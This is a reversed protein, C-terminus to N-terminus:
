RNTVAEGIMNEQIMRWVFIAARTTGLPNELLRDSMRFTQTGGSPSSSTAALDDSWYATYAKLSECSCLPRDLMSLALYAVAREWRPDMQINPLVRTNDKWGARYWVRARDPMRYDSWYSSDYEETVANWTGPQGMALGRRTDRVSLCGNQSAVQCRSCGQGALCDCWAQQWLFQVQVSPDNYHRYVDVTSLFLTDDMGDVDDVVLATQLAANVLQERRCVITAVGGAVSVTTPRVEWTYDGTSAKGPYHISIEDRETVTTTVTITATEDYGDGDTDTYVVPRAAQILSWAERGGSIAYGQSLQVNNWFGRIDRGGANFLMPNAPQPMEVHEDAVWTPLPSYRLWQTIQAEADAIARAVEERGVRDSAQWAYQLMPFGCTQAPALERDQNPAVEDVVVQCFHLPHIGVIEAFRDLPLLTRTSARAM